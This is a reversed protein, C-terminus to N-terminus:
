MIQVYMKNTHTHNYIACKFGTQEPIYFHSTTKINRIDMSVKHISENILM